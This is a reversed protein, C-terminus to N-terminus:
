SPAAHLFRETLERYTGALACALRDNRLATMAEVQSHYAQAPFDGALQQLVAVIEDASQCLYGIRHTAFMRTLVPTPLAIVPRLNAVADVLAGSAAFDYHSGRFPLCVYDAARLGELLHARSM